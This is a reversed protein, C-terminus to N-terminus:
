VQPITNRAENTRLKEPIFKFQGKILNHILLDPKTGGINKKQIKWKKRHYESSSCVFSTTQPALM